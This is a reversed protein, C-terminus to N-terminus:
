TSATAASGRSSTRTSAPAASWRATSTPSPWSRPSTAGGQGLRRLPHPGGDALRRLVARRAARPDGRLGGARGGADGGQRHRDGLGARVRGRDARVQEATVGALAADLQALLARRARGGRPGGAGRRRVPDPTLGHGYAAKCRPTSWRTTRATTSGASALPRGRRLHLRAQGADRRLDRRHVRRVDHPPCTRRATASCCSTATSWRRCAACTAHVAAAGRGRGRRLRSAREPHVRAEAGARHGRPPRPEDELQRGDAAPPSTSSSTTRAM